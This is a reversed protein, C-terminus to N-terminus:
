AVGAAGLYAGMVTGGLILGLWAGVLMWPGFPMRSKRGARRTVILGIGWLAGFLFAAFAGVVLAGWGMWGLYLGLVLALKVDGFGMGGPYAFAIIAYFAGLALMGALARLLQMPDGALLSSAGLLVAGALLAPLVIRNPLTHSDLDILALVISVGALSLFAGLALIGAALRAPAAAPELAGSALMWWTVFGFALATALEVLPYRPSIRARCDRCRGALLLWSLVPINDWARVRAGCQPCASPPSVISRGLPVRYAVVNLFSGVLAGLVGAVVAM